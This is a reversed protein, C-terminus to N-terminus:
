IRQSVELFRLSRLGFWSWSEGDVLASAYPLKALEARVKGFPFPESSFLLLTSDESLDELTIQPYKKEADFLLQDDVFLKLMSGIFTAKSVAM